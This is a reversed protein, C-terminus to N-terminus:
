WDEANQNIPRDVAVPNFLPHDNAVTSLMNMTWLQDPRHEPENVVLKEMGVSNLAEQLNEVLIDMKPPKICCNRLRIEETKIIPINGYAVNLLWNKNHLTSSAAPM